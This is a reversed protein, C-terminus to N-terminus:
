ITVISAGVNWIVWSRCGSKWEPKTCLATYTGAIWFKSGVLTQSLM